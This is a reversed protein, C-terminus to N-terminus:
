YSLDITCGDNTVPGVTFYERTCLKIRKRRAEQVDDKVNTPSVIFM